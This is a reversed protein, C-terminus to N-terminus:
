RKKAGGPKKAATKEPLAQRRTEILDYFREATVRVEPAVNLLMRKDGGVVARLGEYFPRLRDDDGRERLLDLLPEGYGLHVFVAIGRCWHHQIFIPIGIPLEDLASSIRETAIGWNRDYAAFVAQHLRVCQRDDVDMDPVERELQELLAHATTLEGLFDRLLFVRNLVPYAKTPALEHARSYAAEAEQFRGLHAGLLNGLASWSDASEPDLEIARRYAAEAEPYRVMHYQLLNGLGKWPAAFKPDLEIARRYADEAERYRALRYQWLSGLANWTTASKPDLEIAHRYAAEAEPYRALRFQLLNGLEKWPSSFYPDLEAAHRYASEAEPFRMLQYHLLIGLNNWLSSQGPAIEIAHRYADEAESFRRDYYQFLIGLNNWAAVKKPDIEIARRYALGADAHRSLYFQLLVGLCNWLTADSPSLDIARRLALEANQPDKAQRLLEYALNRWGALSHPDLEVARRYAAQAESHLCLKEGIRWGSAVIEIASDSVDPRLTEALFSRIQTPLQHSCAEPIVDVLLEITKKVNGAAAITRVWEREDQVSILQGSALRSSLWDAAEKGHKNRDSERNSELVTDLVNIDEASFDLHEALANRDGSKWMWWDGLVREARDAGLLRILRDRVEAFERVTVPLSDLDVLERFRRAAERAKERLGKLTLDREFEERFYPNELTDCLAMGYAYRDGSLSGECVLSRALGERQEPTYFTELFRALWEMQKRRRRSSGRMMLWVNFFREAIQFGDRKTGFLEVKEVMGLNVLRDLQASVLNTSLNTVEVLGKADIPDWHEAMAAAIVQMQDSLDEFRAKYLPTMEDLLKELDEYVTPAFEGAFLHFLLVITRPVGGALQHLVRLRAPHADLNRPVDENGAAKALTRLVSGIEEVSLSNLYHTKFQDYFAAGYDQTQRPLQPAAAVFIPAGPVTIAGRLEHEQEGIRDFVLQLNDVLLVPRRGLLGAQEMLAAHAERAVPADEGPKRGKSRDLRAVVEDIRKTSVADGERECADALSDLCNLWFKSLRDVTYQEEAFVLPIFRARHEVGRLEAAIRLLLTTKGMGRQGVILHHQPRSDDREAVVDNVIRALVDGRVVFLVKLEEDSLKGPNYARLRHLPLPPAPHSSEM